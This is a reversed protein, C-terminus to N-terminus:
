GEGEAREVRVVHGSDVRGFVSADGDISGLINVPSYPTQGFFVCFAQGPPWYAITGSPVTAAPTEPPASVTTLFYIEEGWRTAESEIPLAELLREVTRSANLTATLDIGAEMVRIRIREM